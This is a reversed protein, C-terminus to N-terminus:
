KKAGPAPQAKQKVGDLPGKELLEGYTPGAPSKIKEVKILAELFEKTIAVKVKGLEAEADAEGPTERAAKAAAKAALIRKTVNKGKLLKAFQQGFDNRFAKKNRNFAPLDAPAVNPGPFIAPSGAPSIM